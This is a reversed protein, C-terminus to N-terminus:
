KKELLIGHPPSSRARLGINTLIQELNRIQEKEIEM